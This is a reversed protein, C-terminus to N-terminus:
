NTKGHRLNYLNQTGVTNRAVGLLYRRVRRLFNRSVKKDYWSANMHHYAYSRARYKGFINVIDNPSFYWQPYITVGAVQQRKGDLRLGHERMIRTLRVVNTSEVNATGDPLIFHQDQYSDLFERIVPMGPQSGIIATTLYDNSEFGMFMKCPLFEDLPHFIEVDTDLYIGGYTELAYLRVYDTVFAWKGCSYAEQVYPVSDEISFNDENWEIIEYDPLVRRWTAICYEVEDPKQKGGFWCYHIIKPIQNM